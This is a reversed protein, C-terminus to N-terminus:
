TIGNIRKIEKYFKENDLSLETIDDLYKQYDKDDFYM